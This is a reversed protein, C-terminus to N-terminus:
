IEDQSNLTSGPASEQVSLRNLADIYAQASAEIIDTSVGRGLCVLEGCRVRISVEGLADQGATVARLQYDALTTQGERGIARSIAKFMADVPGKGTAAEQVTREGLSVQVTATAVLTGGSVVHFYDLHYAQPLSTAYNRVLAELEQDNVQVKRDAVLKFQVFLKDVTDPSFHYGLEILRQELGHRGSHKGLVM